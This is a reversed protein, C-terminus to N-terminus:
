IVRFVWEFHLIGTDDEYQTSNLHWAVGEAGNLADQIKELMPDFEKKTFYDVTGELTQGLKHNNANIRNVEGDEAWVCYPVQLRPRWYHYVDLDQIGTLADRVKTLQSIM